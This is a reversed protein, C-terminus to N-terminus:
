LVEGIDGDALPYAIRYLVGFRVGADRGPLALTTPRPVTQHDVRIDSFASQPQCSWNILSDKRYILGADHLRIFAENVARCM